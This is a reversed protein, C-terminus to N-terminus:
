PAPRSSPMADLRKEIQPLDAEARRREEESFGRVAEWPPRRRDLELAREVDAIARRLLAPDGLREGIERELHALALHGRPDNPYLTVVRRAATLANQHDRAQGSHRALLLHAQAQLRAVRISWPDLREAQNLHAIAQALDTDRFEPSETAWALRAEALRVLPTPDLPDVAAARVLHFETFERVMGLPLDRRRLQEAQNLHYAARGVPLVVGLGVGVVATLGAVFPAWRRRLSRASAPPTPLIPRPEHLLALLAFFTTASAPVFLAFNISEGILMTVLGIGIGFRISDLSSRSAAIAWCGFGCAWTLGSTVSAYYLFSPNDSGLLPLRLLTLSGLLLIMWRWPLSVDSPSPHDSVGGPEETALPSSLRAPAPAPSLLTSPGAHGTEQRPFNKSLRQPSAAFLLTEAARRSGGLLMLLMAALGFVGWESTAQVFLNHPTAVEEVAEIPKYLLYHRGFNERGVGTWPHDTIMTMATKWYHWRFTLSWGPLSDFCLGYVVVGASALVV